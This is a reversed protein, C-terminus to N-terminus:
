DLDIDNRLYIKVSQGEPGHFKKTYYGEEFAPHGWLLYSGRYPIIEPARELVYSPDTKEHGARQHGLREEMHAIHEDTLGLLDIMPRDAYYPLAGAVETAIVVDPPTNANIWRGVERYRRVVHNQLWVHSDSYATSQPLRLALAVGLTVGVALLLPELRPSHRALVGVGWGGLIALLPVLPMFFRAGPMWDGGVVVVYLTFLVCFAGILAVEPWPAKEQAQAARRWLVVGALTGALAVFLLLHTSAFHWLYIAGRVLHEWTGGVKVYFTNPLPYGYYRWRWLYYPLFLVLAVGGYWALPRLWGWGGRPQEEGPNGSRQRWGRWAVVAAYLAGVGALIGGDPRTMMTLAVLLGAVRWRQGVLALITALICVAFLATEMGSGRSTYLLFPSSLVLWGMPALSWPGAIFRRALLTTLVVLVFGLVMTLVITFRTPDGGLAMGGAVIMTWLFNTYGEVQEGVNFVLGNGRVLNRAYRFSVFADDIMWYGLWQPVLVMWVGALAAATAELPSQLWGWLLLLGGVLLSALLSYPMLQPQYLAGVFLWAGALLLVLLASRRWAAVGVIGTAAILASWPTTLPPPALQRLAITDIALGLQRKSADEWTPARMDLMVGEEPHTLGRPVLVQYRRWHQDAELQMTLNNNLTLSFTAPPPPHNPSRRPRCGCLVVEAILPDARLASPITVAARESSWRFIHQGWQEPSHFYFFSYFHRTEGEAVFPEEAGVDITFNWPARHLLLSSGVLLLALLVTASVILVRRGRVRTHQPSASDNDM